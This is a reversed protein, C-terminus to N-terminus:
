AHVRFLNVCQHVFLRTLGKLGKHSIYAHKILRDHALWSDGGLVTQYPRSMAAVASLTAKHYTLRDHIGIVHSATMDCHVTMYAQSMHPQGIQTPARLLMSM